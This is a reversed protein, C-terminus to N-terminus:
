NKGCCHKYKKGSGCPCPENRGIKNIKNRDCTTEKSKRSQIRDSDFYKYIMPLHKSISRLFEHRENIKISIMKITIYNKYEHALSLIPEVLYKNKTDNSIKSWAKLNEKTGEVFGVCWALGYLKDKFIDDYRSAILPYPKNKTIHRSITNWHRLLYSIYKSSQSPTEFEHSGLINPLFQSPSIMDPSCILASYYGDVMELPMGDDISDLFYGLSDLEDNSLSKTLLGSM